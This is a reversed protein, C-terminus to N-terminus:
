GLRSFKGRGKMKKIKFVHTKLEKNYQKDITFRIQKDYGLAELVKQASINYYLGSLRIKFSDDDIEKVPMLYLNKDKDILFKIGKNKELGMLKSAPISFSLNGNFQYSCYISQPSYKKASLIELKM